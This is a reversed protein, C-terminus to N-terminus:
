RGRLITAALWAAGAVAVAVGAVVGAFAVPNRRRFDDARQVSARVRKPVNLRDEIADLTKTLEGRARLVELSPDGIM